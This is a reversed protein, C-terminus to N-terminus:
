QRWTRTELNQNQILRWFDFSDTPHGTPGPDVAEPETTIKDCFPSALMAVGGPIAVDFEQGSNSDLVASRRRAGSVDWGM